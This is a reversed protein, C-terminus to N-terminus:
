MENVIEKNIQVERMYNMLIDEIIGRLGRNLWKEIIYRVDIM